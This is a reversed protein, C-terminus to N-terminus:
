PTAVTVVLICPLMLVTGWVQGSSTLALTFAAGAAVDTCSDPLLVERPVPVDVLGSSHGLQERSNDGFAYISGCTSVAATHANGCAANAVDVDLLGLVATFLTAPLQHGLGLRGSDGNGCCFLIRKLPQSGSMAFTRSCGHGRERTTLRFAVNRNGTNRQQFPSSCSNSSAHLILM